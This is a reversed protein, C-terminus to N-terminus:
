AAQTAKGTDRRGRGFERAVVKGIDVNAERQGLARRIQRANV